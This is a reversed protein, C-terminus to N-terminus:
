AGNITGTSGPEHFMIFAHTGDIILLEFFLILDTKRLFFNKNSGFKEILTCVMSAKDCTDTNIVRRYTLIPKCGEGSIRRATLGFYDHETTVSGKSFRTVWISEKSAKIYSCLLDFAEDHGNVFEIFPQEEKNTYYLRINFISIAFVVLLITFIIAIQIGTVGLLQVFTAILGAIFGAESISSWLIANFSTHKM